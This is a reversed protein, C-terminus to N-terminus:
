NEFLRTNRDYRYEAFIKLLKLIRLARVGRLLEFTETPIPVAAILYFWHSKWYKGKDKAFYLEFIFEALFILAVAVDYYDIFLLQEHSLIEFHELALFVFSFVVLTFMIIEKVLLFLRLKKTQESSRKKM